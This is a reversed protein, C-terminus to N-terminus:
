LLNVAQPPRQRWETAFKTKSVFAIGLPYPRPIWPPFSPTPASSLLHKYHSNGLGSLLLPRTFPDSIQSPTPSDEYPAWFGLPKHHKIPM